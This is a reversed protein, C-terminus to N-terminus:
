GILKGTIWAISSISEEHVINSTNTTALSDNSSFSQTDLVLLRGSATSVAFISALYPHSSIGTVCGDTEITSSPHSERTYSRFLSWICLFSEHDCYHTNKELNYGVVLVSSSCNWEIASVILNFNSKENENSGVRHVLNDSYISHVVNSTIENTQNIFLGKIISNLGKSVNSSVNLEQKLIEEASHLFRILSTKNYNQELYIKENEIEDSGKAEVQQDCNTISQIAKNAYEITETQCFADM